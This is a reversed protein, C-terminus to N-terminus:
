PTREHTDRLSPQTSLRIKTLTLEMANFELCSGSVASRTQQWLSRGLWSVELSCWVTSRPRAKVNSVPFKLSGKVVSLWALAQIQPLECLM